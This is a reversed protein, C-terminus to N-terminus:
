TTPTRPHNQSQHRQCDNRPAHTSTTRLRLSTDSARQAKISGTKVAQRAPCVPGPVGARTCAIQPAPRAPVLTRHLPYQGGCPVAPVYRARECYQVSDQLGAAVRLTQVAVGVM